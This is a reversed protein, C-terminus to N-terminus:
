SCDTLLMPSTDIGCGHFEERKEEEGEGGAFRAGEDVNEVTGVEATVERGKRLVEEEADREGV